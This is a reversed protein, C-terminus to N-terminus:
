VRRFSVIGFSQVLNSVAPGSARACAFAGGKAISGCGADEPRRRPSLTSHSAETLEGMEPGAETIEVAKAHIADIHLPALTYRGLDEGLIQGGVLAM